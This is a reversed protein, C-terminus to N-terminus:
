SETCPEAIPKLQKITRSYLASHGYCIIISNSAYEKVGNILNDHLKRDLGYKHLTVITSAVMLEEQCASPQYLAINGKMASNGSGNDTNGAVATPSRRAKKNEIM